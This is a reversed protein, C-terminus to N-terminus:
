GPKEQLSVRFVHCHNPDVHDDVNRRKEFQVETVPNEVNYLVADFPGIFEEKKKKEWLENVIKYSRTLHNARFTQM